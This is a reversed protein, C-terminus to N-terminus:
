AWAGYIYTGGTNNSSASLLTFGDSDFQIWSSADARAGTTDLQVRYLTSSGNNYFLDWNGTSDSRKSLVMKPEFGLGTIAKSSGKGSYTGFSSKGTKSTFLYAVYEKGSGNVSIGTGVTFVSSTPSTNNWESVAGANVAANTDLVYYSSWGIADHGVVWSTNQTLNKIIIFKPAANLNHSITRNTGNGTYTVVDCFGSKKLWSLAIYSDNLNNVQGTSGDVGLSFGSANFSMLTATDTTEVTSDDTEIYKTAGRETDFLSFNSTASTKKILTVSGNDQRLGTTLSRASSNGIYALAITFSSAAKTIQCGLSNLDNM